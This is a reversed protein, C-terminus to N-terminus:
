NGGSKKQKIELSIKNAIKYTSIAKDRLAILEQDNYSYKKSFNYAKETAKLLNPQLHNTLFSLLEIEQKEKLLLCRKETANTWTALQQKILDLVLIEADNLQVIKQEKLSVTQQLWIPQNFQKEMEKILYCFGEALVDGNSYENIKHIIRIQMTVLPLLNVIENHITCTVQKKKGGERLMKPNQLFYDALEGATTEEGTLPHHGTIASKPNIPNISNIPNSQNNHNTLKNKQEDNNLTM